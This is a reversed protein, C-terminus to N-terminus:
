CQLYLLGPIVRPSSLIPLLESSGGSLDLNMAWIMPRGSRLFPMAILRRKYPSCQLRCYEM